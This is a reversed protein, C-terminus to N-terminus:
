FTKQKASLNDQVNMMKQRCKRTSKKVQATNKEVTCKKKTHLVSNITNQSQTVKFLERQTRYYQQLQELLRNVVTEIM